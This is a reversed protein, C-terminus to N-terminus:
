CNCIDEISACNFKSNRRAGFVYDNRTSTAWFANLIGSKIIRRYMFYNHM